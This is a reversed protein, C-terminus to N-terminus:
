FQHQRLQDAEQADRRPGRPLTGHGRRQRRPAHRRQQGHQRERGQAGAGCQRGQQDQRDGRCPTAKPALLGNFTSMDFGKLGSEDLTPVDPLTAFRKISGVAVPRLRNADFLPKLPQAAAFVMSIVGAAGDAISPATGKYPVHTLKVGSMMMLQEATMHSSSGVGPTGYTFKEPNGKALALLDKVSKIPSDPRVAIVNVGAQILIVPALDRQLVVPAPKGLGTNALVENTMM